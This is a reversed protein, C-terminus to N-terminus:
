GVDLAVGQVHGIGVAVRFLSLDSGHIKKPSKEKVKCICARLNEVTVKKM